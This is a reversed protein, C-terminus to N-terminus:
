LSLGPMEAEGAGEGAALGEEGTQCERQRERFAQRLQGTTAAREGEFREEEVLAEAGEVGLREADGDLAEFEERAAVAHDADDGM